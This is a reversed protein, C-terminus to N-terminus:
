VDFLQIERWNDMYFGIFYAIPSLYQLYYVMSLTMCLKALLVFESGWVLSIFAIYFRDISWYKELIKCVIHMYLSMCICFCLIHVCIWWKIKCILKMLISIGSVSTIVHNLLNLNHWWWIKPIFGFYILVSILAYLSKQMFHVHKM